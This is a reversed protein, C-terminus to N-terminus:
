LGGPCGQLTQLLESDDRKLAGPLREKPLTLFPPQSPFPPGHTGDEPSDKGKKESTIVLLNPAAASM